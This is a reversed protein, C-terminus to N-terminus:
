TVTEGLADATAQMIPNLRQSVGAKPDALDGLRAMEGGLVYRGEIRDLLGNEELTTLLRFATPRSLGSVSALESATAGAPFRAVRRLLQGARNVSRNSHQGAERQVEDIEQRGKGSETMM